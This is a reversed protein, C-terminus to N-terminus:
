YATKGESGSRALSELAAHMQRVLEYGPRKGVMRNLPQGRTSIFQITPYNRVQFQQCVEPERDADILVCVFRESLNVVAVDTFAEAALQHCFHCWTATFFLLVPKHQAKAAEIGASYGNIFRLQGRVIGAAPTPPAVPALPGPVVPSSQPAQTTPAPGDCGVLLALIIISAFALSLHKQMKALEVGYQM